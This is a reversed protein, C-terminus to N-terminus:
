IHATNDTCVTARCPMSCADRSSCTEFAFLLVKILGKGSRICVILVTLLHQHHCGAVRAQLPATWAVNQTRLVAVETETTYLPRCCVLVRLQRRVGQMTQFLDTVVETTLPRKAQVKWSSRGTISGLRPASPSDHQASDPRRPLLRQKKGEEEMRESNVRFSALM